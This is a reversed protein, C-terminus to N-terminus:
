TLAELEAWAARAAQQEAMKKTTGEGRGSVAGVSVAARFQKDHDPGAAAVEYCPPDLGLRAAQEQLRTKHDARGPDLVAADIRHGLLRLVLKRAAEEGGDLYVAAVVAETADALLSARDRGGSAAEGKGLRLRPGLGLARGTEALATEAVVEARIKSLDGETRDPFRNFLERTVILDLVADGLFELRENSGSAPHEACWSRHTLARNM